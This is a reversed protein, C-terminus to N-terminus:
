FIQFRFTLTRCCRLLVQVLARCVVSSVLLLNALNEWEGIKHDLNSSIDLLSVLGLLCGLWLHYFSTLITSRKWYCRLTISSVVILLGSGGVSLLSTYGYYTYRVYCAIALGMTIVGDPVLDLLDLFRHLKRVARQREPSKSSEDELTVAVM